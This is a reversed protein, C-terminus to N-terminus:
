RRLLVPPLGGGIDPPDETLALGVAIWSDSQALTIAPDYQGVSTVYRSEVALASMGQKASVMSWPASASASNNSSLYSAAGLVLTKSNRTAPMTVAAATGIGTAFVPELDLMGAAYVQKCRHASLTIYNGSGVNPTAVVDLGTTEGAPTLCKWAGLWINTSDIKQLGLPEWEGGRSDSLTIGTASEMWGGVFALLPTGAAPATAFSAQVSAASEGSGMVSEVIAAGISPVTSPLSVSGSLTVAAPAYSPNSADWTPDTASTSGGLDTSAWTDFGTQNSTVSTLAEGINAGGFDNHCVLNTVVVPAAADWEAEVQAQTFAAKWIKVDAVYCKANSTNGTYTGGLCMRTLTDTTQRGHVHEVSQTSGSVNRLYARLCRQASGNVTGVLAISIWEGANGTGLAATTTKFNHSVSWATVGASTYLAMAASAATDITLVNNTGDDADMYVRMTVTFADHSVAASDFLASLVNNDSTFRVSM